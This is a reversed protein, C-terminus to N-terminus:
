TRGTGASGDLLLSGMSHMTMRRASPDQLGLEKSITTVTGLGIIAWAILDAEEAAAKGRKGRHDVVHDRVFRHYRSYMGALAARIEPDDTENLGAFIIRHNGFKGINESEYALLRAATTGPGGKALVRSWIEVALDFVYGLAAIFMARKDPWLRYLINQQVGCREALEATTARRYGLEAFAKAVIPLLESRKEHLQNPRAMRTRTHSLSSSLVPLPRSM